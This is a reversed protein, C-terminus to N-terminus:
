GGNAERMKPPMTSNEPTKLGPNSTIPTVQVRQPRDAAFHASGDALAPRPSGILESTSFLQRIANGHAANVARQRKVQDILQPLVGGPNTLLQIEARLAKEQQLLYDVEARLQNIETTASATGAAAAPTPEMKNFWYICGFGVAMFVTLAWLFKTIKLYINDPNLPPSSLFVNARPGSEGPMRFGNLPSGTAFDVVGITRSM